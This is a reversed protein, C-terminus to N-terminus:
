HVIYEVSRRLLARPQEAREVRAEGFVGRREATFPTGDHFRVNPRLKFEWTTPDVVRWAVALSPQIQLNEDRAILHEFINEVQQNNQARSFLPDMSSPEAAVAMTLARASVSPPISCAAILVCAAAIRLRSM